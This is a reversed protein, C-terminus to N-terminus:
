NLAPMVEDHILNLQAIVDPVNAVDAGSFVKVLFPDTVAAIVHNVGTPLIDTKLKDACEAPTGAISLKEAVEPTTLELAKAVDGAGFAETIPQLSQYDLGHREIQGQPMAPIYFAAMIRAAEKAAKSDESVTMIVWAGIDLDQWDKGAKEAGIKVHEVAYEYHERSYGCASHMGDAIEAAVEFSRPGGMAGIKLPIRDQVPRAATFLGTYNFFEGEHSITGEDLFTRMVQVGEKVRAVPRKGQWERHYQALMVLNGFSVVAESRGDTLEDLTALQQAILTPERLILHTVNPGLRINKTKDAAAAFLLWMDKHYTEDVSYCAYYGLDDAAQIMKISEALPYDPVHCYSFRVM